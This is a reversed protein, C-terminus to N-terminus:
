CSTSSQSADQLLAGCCLFDRCVCWVLTSMNTEENEPIKSTTTWASRPNEPDHFSGQFDFDLSSLAYSRATHFSSETEYLVAKDPSVEETIREAIANVVEVEDTEM